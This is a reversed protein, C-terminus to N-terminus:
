RSGETVLGRLLSALEVPEEGPVLPLAGVGRLSAPDEPLGRMRGREEDFFVTETGPYLVWVTAASPAEDVSAGRIAERYTHMKRIDEAKFWGSPLAAASALEDAAEDRSLPTSRREVRFKADLFHRVAGVDLTIDPRLTVSYSGRLNGGFSRNYALEVDGPYRLRIENEPVTTRLDDSRVLTQAELPEGVLERLIDAVEFFTWYEYLLSAEKAELLRVLDKGSIPYRAALVLALYHELLERYGSRRQLVQSSAPFVHMEGVGELFARRRWPEIQRRLSRAGEALQAELLGAVGDWDRFRESARDLLETVFELFYRVFRNEPTDFTTRAVPERVREPLASRGVAGRLRRALATEAARSGNPVDCWHSMDCLAQQLTAPSASRVEWVPHEATERVLSRHPDSEVLALVELLSPSASEIAWRLYTFAHYLLDREDLATREYPILTPSQYDFPLTACRATIERLLADFGDADLKSTRVHLRCTGLDLEGVYDDFNVLLQHEGSERKPLRQGVGRPLTLEETSVIVYDCWCAIDYCGHEDCALPESADLAWVTVSPTSV